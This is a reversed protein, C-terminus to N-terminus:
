ESSGGAAVGASAERESSNVASPKEGDKSSSREGASAVDSSLKGPEFEHYGTAGRLHHVNADAPENCIFGGAFEKQCHENPDDNNDDIKAKPARQLANSLSQSRPSKTPSKSTSKKRGKKTARSEVVPEPLPAVMDLFLDYEEDDLNERVYDVMGRVRQFTTSLESRNPM